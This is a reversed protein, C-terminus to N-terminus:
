CFYPFRVLDCIKIPEGSDISLDLFHMLEVTAVSIQLDRKNFPSDNTLLSCFASLMNALPSSQPHPVNITFNSSNVAVLKHRSQDDYTLSEQNTYASFIRTKRELHNSVFSHVELSDPYQMEITIDTALPNRKPDPLHKVARVTTPCAGILDLSMSLDHPAWDWLVPTDTRYPGPGGARSKVLNLRGSSCRHRIKLAQFASSYLHVHGTLTPLGLDSLLDYLYNAQDISSTFPKELLFPVRHIACLSAIEFHTWPPTAIIVGDVAKLSVLERWDSFVQTDHTLLTSTLPNQSYVSTLNINEMGNITHIYRKGWRGAGLLGLRIM